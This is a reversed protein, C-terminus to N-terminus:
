PKHAEEINSSTAKQEVNRTRERQILALYNIADLITDEINREKDFFDALPVKKKPNLLYGLRALKLSFLYIAIDTNKTEKKMIESAIKAAHIFVDEGYENNRGSLLEKANDLISKTEDLLSSPRQSQKLEEM